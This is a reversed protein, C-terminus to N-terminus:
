KDGNYEGIWAGIKDFNHLVWAVVLREPIVQKCGPCPNPNQEYPTMWYPEGNCDDCEHVIVSEWTKHQPWARLHFAGDSDLPEGIDIGNAMYVSNYIM